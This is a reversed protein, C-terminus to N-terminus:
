FFFVPGEPQDRIWPCKVSGSPEWVKGYLDQVKGALTFFNSSDIPIKSPRWGEELPLRQERFLINVFEKPAEGTIVNGMTALYFSSERARFIFEKETNIIAPNAAQQINLRETLVAVASTINYYDVGPNSNALTEFITENFHIGDGQHFDQRSLSADHEISGYLGTEELTVFNPDDTTLVAVKAAAVNVNIPRFNFGDNIADLILQATVNKGNRPLFGHNALTNLGPCPGRSDSSGPAQFKHLNWDIDARAGIALASAILSVSLFKM